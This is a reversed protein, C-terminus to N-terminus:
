CPQKGGTSKILEPNDFINGCVEWLLSDAEEMVDDETSERICWSLGNWVVQVYTIDNPHSDDLHASLIDGEFIKRGNKEWISGATVFVCENPIEFGDDDYKQLCMGKICKYKM